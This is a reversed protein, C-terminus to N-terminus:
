CLLYWLAGETSGRALKDEGQLVELSQSRNTSYNTFLHTLIVRSESTKDPASLARLDCWGEYLKSLQSIRRVAAETLYRDLRGNRQDNM